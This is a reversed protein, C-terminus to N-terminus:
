CGELMMIVEDIMHQAYKDTKASNDFYLVGKNRDEYVKAIVSGEENQDDTVWADILYCKEEDDFYYNKIEGWKSSEAGYKEILESKIYYFLRDRISEAREASVLGKLQIKSISYGIKLLDCYLDLEDKGIVKNM